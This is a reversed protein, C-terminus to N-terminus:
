NEIVWQHSLGIGLTLRGGTAMQATAGQGALVLPHRPYTPVVSTGFEIAPVERGAVAIATLADLGFIQPLWFSPFGQEKATAVAAVTGDLNGVDGGFIGIRM